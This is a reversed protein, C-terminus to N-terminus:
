DSRYAYHAQQPCRGSKSNKKGYGYKELNDPLGIVIPHTISCAKEIDSVRVPRDPCSYLFKLVRYQSGTLHYEAPISKAQKDFILAARKIPISISNTSM